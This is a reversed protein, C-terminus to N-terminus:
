PLLVVKGFQGRAALYEHAARAEALPFTRDVVPQLAGAAVLAWVARMEARSGMKAGFIKLQRDFVYRLDIPAIPDKTAGCTVLRGSRRLCKLASALIDGGVHEFVADAMGGGTLKRVTRALDEPPHQILMIDEGLAKVRELKEKSTSTAIVRAGKQKAIAIAATAVGAGAGIVLLIEGAKLAALTELMHWATLFTLPVAAAEAFTQTTTMPLLDEAPVALLEAYGGPRGGYAGIIGFDACDSERGELCPACRGCSRGPHVAFRAGLAVDKVGTGLAAVEGAVDCGLIFPTAVKASPLGDRIWLDLHNLACARVRLLVEGPGPLPDPVTTFELNEPGGFAKLVVAKM